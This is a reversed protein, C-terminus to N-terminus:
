CTGHAPARQPPTGRHIARSTSTRPQAGLVTTPVDRPHSSYPHHGTPLPPCTQPQVCSCPRHDGVM